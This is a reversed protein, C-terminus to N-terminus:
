KKIWAWFKRRTLYDPERDHQYAEREFIINRYALRTNKYKLLNFLYNILYIVYFPFVLMELQQRLHITEHRILVPDNIRYKDKILIFPFIAMGEPKMSPILIIPYNM